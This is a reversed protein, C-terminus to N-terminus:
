EEWSLSIKKTMKGCNPLARHQPQLWQAAGGHAFWLMAQALAPQAPLVRHAEAPHQKQWHPFSSDDPFPSLAGPPKPPLKSIPVMVLGQNMGQEPEWIATCGYAVYSNIPQFGEGIGKSYPFCCVGLGATVSALSSVLLAMEPSRSGDWM